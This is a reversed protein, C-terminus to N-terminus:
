WSGAPDVWGFMVYIGGFGGQVSQFGSGTVTLETQATPSVDTGTGSTGGTITVAADAQAGIAPALAILAALGFAAVARKM